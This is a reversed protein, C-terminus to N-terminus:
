PENQLINTINGRTSRKLTPAELRKADIPLDYRYEIKEYVKQSKVTKTQEIAKQPLTYYILECFAYQAHRLFCRHAM